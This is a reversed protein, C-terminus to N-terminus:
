RLPQHSKAQPGTGNFDLILREGGEDEPGTKTLTIRQTHLMPEDVGDHEAYDEM